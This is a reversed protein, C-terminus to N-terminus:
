PTPTFTKVGYQKEITGDPRITITSDAIQWTGDSGPINIPDKIESLAPTPEGNKTFLGCIDDYFKEIAAGAVIEAFWKAIQTWLGAGGAVNAMQMADLTETSFLEMAEDMNMDLENVLFENTKM